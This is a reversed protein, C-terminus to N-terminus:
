GAASSNSGQQCCRHAAQSYVDVAKALWGERGAPCVPLNHNLHHHLWNHDLHHHFM